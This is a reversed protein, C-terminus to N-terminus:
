LHLIKTLREYIIKMLKYKLINSLLNFKHKFFIAPFHIISIRIIVDNKPIEKVNYIILSKM